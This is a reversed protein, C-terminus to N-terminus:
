EKISIILQRKKIKYQIQSPLALNKALYIEKLNAIIKDIDEKTLWRKEFFSKIQELDKLTLSDAGEFIIKKIYFKEPEELRRRLTKEKEIEEETKLIQPLPQAYVFNFFLIVVMLSFIRKM